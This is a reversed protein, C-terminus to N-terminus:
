EIKAKISYTSCKKYIEMVEKTFDGNEDFCILPNLVKILSKSNKKAYVLVLTAEKNIKPHVFQMSEVNLNYKKLFVLIDMIQKSDYCFLFKGNEKLITSVKKIFDELPLSDVYRAIKINLNESKIVNGHYFPPNSVCLDFKKDFDIELFSGSYLNNSIKNVQSNLTTFFQFLKQIECQNLKLNKYDRALLLGLIGSGSGIDLLEGKLNKYKSLNDCIFNYLYHTDSNYCYGDIPQYLILKSTRM